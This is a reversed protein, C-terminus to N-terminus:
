FHNPAAGMTNIPVGYQQLLSQVEQLSFTQEATAPPPAPRQLQHIQQQLQQGQLHLAAIDQQSAPPPGPQPHINNIHAGQAGRRAMCTKETHYSGGCYYCTIPFNHSRQQQPHPQHKPAPRGRNGQKARPKPRAGAAAVVVGAYKPAANTNNDKATTEYHIATSICETITHWSTNAMVKEQLSPLLGTIFLTLARQKFYFLHIRDLHNAALNGPANAPGADEATILTLTNKSTAKARVFFEEVKEGPRQKIAIEARRAQIATLPPAFRTLLGQKVLEWVRGEEKNEFQFLKLWELAPGQLAHRLCAIIDNDLQIGASTCFAEFMPVFNAAEVPTGQGTLIPIPLRANHPNPAAAPQGANPGAPQGADPNDLQAPAPNANAM